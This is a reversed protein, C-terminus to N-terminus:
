VNRCNVKTNTELHFLVHNFFELKQDLHGFKPSGSAGCVWDSIRDM